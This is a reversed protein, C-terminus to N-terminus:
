RGRGLSRYYSRTWKDDVPPVNWSPALPFTFDKDLPMRLAIIAKCHELVFTVYPLQSDDHRFSAYHQLEEKLDDTCVSVMALSKERDQLALSGRSRISQTAMVKILLPLVFSGGYPPAM